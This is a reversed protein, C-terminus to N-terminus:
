EIFVHRQRREKEKGKYCEKAERDELVIAKLRSV